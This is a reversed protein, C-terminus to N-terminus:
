NCVMSRIVIRDQFMAINKIKWIKKESNNLVFQWM